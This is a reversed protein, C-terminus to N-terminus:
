NLKNKCDQIISNVAEHWIAPNQGNATTAIICGILMDAVILCRADSAPIERSMKIAMAILGRCDQLTLPTGKEKLSYILNQLEPDM